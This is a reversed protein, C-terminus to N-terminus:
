KSELIQKVQQWYNIKSQATDSLLLFTDCYWKSIEIMEDCLILACQKANDYQFDEDEMKGYNASPIFKKILEDAKAEEPTM